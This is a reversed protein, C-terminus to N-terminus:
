VAIDKSSYSPDDLNRSTSTDIHLMATKSSLLIDIEADVGSADQSQVDNFLALDIQKAFEESIIVFCDDM